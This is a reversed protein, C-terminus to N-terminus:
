GGHEWSEDHADSCCGYDIFYHYSFYALYRLYSTSGKLEEFFNWTHTGYLDFLSVM